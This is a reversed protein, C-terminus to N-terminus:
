EEDDDPPKGEWTFKAIVFAQYKLMNQHVKVARVLVERAVARDEDTM